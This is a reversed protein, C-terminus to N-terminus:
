GDQPFFQRYVVSLEIFFFRAQQRGVVVFPGDGPKAQQSDDGRGGEAHAEAACERYKEDVGEADEAQDREVKDHICGSDQSFSLHHRREEGNPEGEGGEEGEEGPAVGAQLANKFAFVRLRM